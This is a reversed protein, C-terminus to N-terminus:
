QVVQLVERTLESISPTPRVKKVWPWSAMAEKIKAALMRSQGAPFIWGDSDSTVLDHRCGVNDSVIVRVGQSLAENVVLGWVEGQVSPLILLDITQYFSYMESQNLFGNEHYLLCGTINQKFNRERAKSLMDYIDSLSFSDDAVSRYIISYM